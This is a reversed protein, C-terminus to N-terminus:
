LSVSDNGHYLNFGNQKAFGILAIDCERCIELALQSPPGIAVIMRLGVMAAKQALEFSVRGTLLVGQSESFKAINAGILKDLANHRGIDEQVNLIAGCEDFLAAGHCGGTVDFLPQHQRVENLLSTLDTKNIVFPNRNKMQPLSQLLNEISQLGCVGCSTNQYESRSFGELDIAEGPLLEVVIQNSQIGKLRAKGTHYIKNIQNRTAHGNTILWGLVLAEDQGPTRMMTSVPVMKSDYPSSYIKLWVELPEELILQDSTNGALKDQVRFISVTEIQKQHTM